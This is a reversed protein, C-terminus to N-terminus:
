RFRYSRAAGNKSRNNSSFRVVGRVPEHLSGSSSPSHSVEGSSKRLWRDAVKLYHRWNRETRPDELMAYGSALAALRRDSGASVIRESSAFRHRGAQVSEMRNILALVTEDKQYRRWWKMTDAVYGTTYRHAVFRGGRKKLSGGNYHSLALDWREGYIRYLRELYTVGLRVNTQADWLRHAEVGFEGRATAPMIQMVGRAGASSKALPRFNSEIRAVALALSPPVTGNKLAEDVITQHVSSAYPFRRAEVVGAFLVAAALAFFVAPILILPICSTWKMTIDGKFPNDM